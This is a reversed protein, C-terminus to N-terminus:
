PRRGEITDVCQAIRNRLTGEPIEFRQEDAVEVFVIPLGIDDRLAALVKPDNLPEHVRTRDVTTYHTDGISGFKFNLEEGLERDEDQGFERPPSVYPLVAKWLARKADQVYAKWDEWGAEPLGIGGLVNSKGVLRDGVVKFQPPEGGGLWHVWLVEAGVETGVRVEVALPDQPREARVFRALLWGLIRRAASQPLGTWVEESIERRCDHAAGRFLLLASMPDKGCLVKGLESDNSRGLRQALCRRLPAVPDQKLEKDIVEQLRSDPHELTPLSPLGAKRGSLISPGLHGKLRDILAEFDTELHVDEQLANMDALIETLGAISRRIDRYLDLKANVGALHDQQRLGRMKTELAEARQEWFGIYDLLAESDYLPTDRLVIPYVRKHLDRNKEIELLEYMCNESKLYESSLVVIIAGGRGLEQMYKKISEGYRIRSTDRGLQIGHSAFVTELRGVIEQSSPTWSYSVYVSPQSTSEM